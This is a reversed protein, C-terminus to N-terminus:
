YVSYSSLHVNNELKFRVHQGPMVHIPQSTWVQSSGLPDAVIRVDGSGMVAAAPLVFRGRGMATVSGLRTRMGDRLLYLTMDQWNNNEVLLTARDSQEQEAAQRNAPGCAGMTLAVAVAAGTMLKRLSM